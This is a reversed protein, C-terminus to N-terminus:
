GTGLICGMAGACSLVPPPLPAYERDEQIGLACTHCDAGLGAGADVRVHARAGRDAGANPHASARDGDTDAGASFHAASATAADAHASAASNTDLDGDAPDGPYTDPGAHHAGANGGGALSHAFAHPRSARGHGAGADQDSQSHTLPGAASHAIRLGATDAVAPDAGTHSHAHSHEGPRCAPHFGAWARFRSVNALPPRVAM